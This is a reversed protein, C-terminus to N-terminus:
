IIDFNSQSKLKNKLFSIFKDHWNVVTQTSVGFHDAIEKFTKVKNGNSLYRMKIVEKATEDNSIEIIKKIYSLLENNREQFSAEKNLHQDSLFKLIEDDTTIEKKHQNCANLCAYTIINGLWTSFKAGFSPDYTKAAQYILSDKEREIDKALTSTNNQFYKNYIKYCIGSHRDILMSLADNDAEIKVRNALDIDTTNNDIM